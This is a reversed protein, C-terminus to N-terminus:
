PWDRERISRRLAVLASFGLVYHLLIRMALVAPRQFPSLRESGRGGALVAYWDFPRPRLMWLAVQWASARSPYNRRIHYEVIGRAIRRTQKVLEGLEARAPHRVRAEPAYGLRFGAKRARLCFEFDGGSELADDFGGIREFVDRKVFLNATAFARWRKFSEAQNLGFAYDYRAALTDSTQFIEIQGGVADCTQAALAELGRELWHSDPICDADTFALVKGSARHLGANRAAYSFGEPAHFYLAGVPRQQEPLPSDDNDVVIIEFTERPLSQAALAALCLELRQWDRYTPVIVSARPM